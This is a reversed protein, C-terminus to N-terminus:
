AELIELFPRLAGPLVIQQQRLQWVMASFVSEAAAVQEPDESLIARRFKGFLAVPDGVM